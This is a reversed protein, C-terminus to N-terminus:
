AIKRKSEGQMEQSATTAIQKQLNLAVDSSAFGAVSGPKVDIGTLTQHRVTM